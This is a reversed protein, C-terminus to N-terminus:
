KVAMSILYNQEMIHKKGEALKQFFDSKEGLFIIKKYNIPNNTGLNFTHSLHWGDSYIM